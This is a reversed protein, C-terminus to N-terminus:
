LAADHDGPDSPEVDPLHSPAPEAEPPRYLNSWQLPHLTTPTTSHHIDLSYLMDDFIIKEVEPESSNLSTWVHFVRRINFVGQTSLLPSTLTAGQFFYYDLVRKHRAEDYSVLDEVLKGILETPTQNLDVDM